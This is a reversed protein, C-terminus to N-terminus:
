AASRRQRPARRIPITLRLPLTGTSSRQDVSGRGNVRQQGSPILIAPMAAAGQLEIRDRHVVLRLDLREIWQALNGGLALRRLSADDSPEDGLHELNDRIDSALDQLTHLRILESENDTARARLDARLRENEALRKRYEEEVMGDAYATILRQRKVDLAAIKAEVPGVAALAATAEDDLGALFDQVARRLAKPDDAMAQLRQEVQSILWDYQLRPASCKADDSMAVRRLRGSCRMYKQRGRGSDEAGFLRHCEACRVRGQLLWSRARKKPAHYAARRRDQLAVFTDWTIVADVPVPVLGNAQAMADAEEITRCDIIGSRGNRQLGVLVLRRAQARSRADVLVDPPRHYLRGALAPNRILEMVVSARWGVGVRQWNPNVESPLPADLDNAVADASKGSLYDSVIKRVTIAADPNLEFQGDSKKKGTQHWTFWWPYSGGSFRGERMVRTRGRATQRTIKVRAATAITMRIGRDLIRSEPDDARTSHCFQIGDGYVDHEFLLPATWWNRGLRDDDRYVLVDVQGARLKELAEDLVPRDAPGLKGSVGNEQVKGVVKYGHEESWRRCEAVQDELRETSPDDNSIRALIIATKTM